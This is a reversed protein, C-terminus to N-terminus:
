GAIDPHRYNIVANNNGALFKEQEDEIFLDAKLQEILSLLLATNANKKGIINKLSLKAM